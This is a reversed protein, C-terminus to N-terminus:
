TLEGNQLFGHYSGSLISGAGAACTLGNKDVTVDPPEGHRVWCHHETDDPMTCNSARHDICWDNGNPLTVCLNRGDPLPSLFPGGTVGGYWWADWMAGPGFDRIATKIEGTDPRRYRPSISKWGPYLATWDVEVTRDRPTAYPHIEVRGDSFAIEADGTPEIWFCRVSLVGEV